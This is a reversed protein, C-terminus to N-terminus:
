LFVRCQQRCGASDTLVVARGTWVVLLRGCDQASSGLLPVKEEVDVVEPGYDPVATASSGPGAAVARPLRAPEGRSLRAKPDSCACSM